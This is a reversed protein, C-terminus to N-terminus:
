QAEAKNFFPEESIHNIYEMAHLAGAQEAEKKSRGTGIGIEQGDLIVSAHFQPNHSNSDWRSNTNFRLNRKSKQSWEILRSKFDSETSSLADLNIGPRLIDNIFFRNTFDYGKDLYMAGIIAELADGNLHLLAGNGGGHSIIYKDLGIDQAIRNLSSRSVIRSRIRTLFGENRGPYEIFLYDSVISQIVADGLFELRENNIQSGDPMFLSASRHVLALKYLEINDPVIGLCEKFIKYYEKDKGYRVKWPLFVSDFM